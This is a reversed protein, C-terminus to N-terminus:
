HTAPREVPWNTVLFDPAEREYWACVSKALSLGKVATAKSRTTLTDRSKALDESRSTVFDHMARNRDRRWRDVEEFMRRDENSAKRRVTRLMEYLVVEKSSFGKATCYLHLCNSIVAEELAIAELHFGAEIALRMRDIAERRARNRHSLREMAEDFSLGSAKTAMHLAEFVSAQKGSSGHRDVDKVFAWFQNHFCDFFTRVFTWEQKAWGNYRPTKDEPFPIEMLGYGIEAIWECFVLILGAVHIRTTTGDPYMSAMEPTWDSVPWRKVWKEIADDARESLMAILLDYVDRPQPSLHLIEDCAFCNSLHVAFAQLDLWGTEDIFRYSKVYEFYTEIESDRETKM